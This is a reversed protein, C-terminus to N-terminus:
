MASSEDNINIDASDKENFIYYNLNTKLITATCLHHSLGDLEGM